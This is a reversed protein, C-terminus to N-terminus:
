EFLTLLLFDASLSLPRACHCVDHAGIEGFRVVDLLPTSAARADRAESCFAPSPGEIQLLIYDFFHNRKNPSTEILNALGVGFHKPMRLAM